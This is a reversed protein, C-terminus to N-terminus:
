VRPSERIVQQTAIPLTAPIPSFKPEPNTEAVRKASALTGADDYLNGSVKEALEPPEITKKYVSDLNEYAAHPGEGTWFDNGDTIKDRANSLYRNAEKAFQSVAHWAEGAKRADEPVLKELDGVITAHEKGKWGDDGM